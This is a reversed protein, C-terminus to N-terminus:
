RVSRLQAAPGLTRRSRVAISGHPGGADRGGHSARRRRNGGSASRGSAFHTAHRRTGVRCVTCSAPFGAGELAPNKMAPRATLGPAKSCPSSKGRYILAPVLPPAPCKGPVAVRANLNVHRVQRIMRHGPKVAQQQKGDAQAHDSQHDRHHRPRDLNVAGLGIGDDRFGFLVLPRANRKGGPRPTKLLTWRGPCRSSCKVQPMQLFM